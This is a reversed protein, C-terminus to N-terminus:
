ASNICQLSNISNISNILSITSTSNVRPNIRANVTGLAAGEIEAFPNIVLMLVWTDIYQSGQSEERGRMRPNVRSEEKRQMREAVFRFHGIHVHVNKFMLNGVEGIKGLRRKGDRPHASM